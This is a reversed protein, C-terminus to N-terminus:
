LSQNQFNIIIFSHSLVQRKFLCASKESEGAKDTSKIQTM